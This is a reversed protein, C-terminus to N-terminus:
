GQQDQANLWLALEERGRQHVGAFGQIDTSAIPGNKLVDSAHSPERLSTRVARLDAGREGSMLRGDRVVDFAYDTPSDWGVKFMSARRILCPFCYGCNGQPRKAWRAAEPHACSISQRALKQLQNIGMYADLLEGKTMMRFPNELRNVIGIGKLFEGLRAIFYPHTTRTSFSGTRSLTLPVNVGIFGNEPIVLPATSGNSSAVVLGAAIFLLSRTRSSRERAGSLSNVQKPGPPAPRLFLQRLRVAPTGYEAELEHSLAVQVGPTLGGEYHGVLCVRQQEGLLKLAGTLSDLGGSFLCVSDVAADDDSQENPRASGAEVRIYWEDGSLFRLATELHGVGAGWLDPDSVPVVLELQRSWSGPDRTTVRDICYAAAALGLFERAAAFPKIGRLLGGGAEINGGRETWWDLAKYGTALASDPSWRLQYRTTKPTSNSM